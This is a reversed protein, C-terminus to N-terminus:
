SQKVSNYLLAGLVFNLFTTPLLYVRSTLPYSVAKSHPYFDSMNSEVKRVSIGTHDTKIQVYSHNFWLYNCM